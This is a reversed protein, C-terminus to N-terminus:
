PNDSLHLSTFLSTTSDPPLPAGQYERDAAETSEVIAPGGGWRSRHTFYLLANGSDRTRWRRNIFLM